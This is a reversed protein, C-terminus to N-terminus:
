DGSAVDMNFDCSGVNEKVGFKRMHATTQGHNRAFERQKMHQDEAKICFTGDHLLQFLPEANGKVKTLADAIMAPHDVWRVQGQLKQLDERIIQIEIATRRDQGGVTDKSLLDFLSKADVIALSERLVEQNKETGVVMVERQAVHDTWRKLCFRPNTLEEILVALWMLDGLGRSMSQTEAALTSNVVRQLKGSKWALVNAKVRHGERLGPEHALIVHGGQSHFGNNGFSADTVLSLKMNRLPQIRIHMDKKEKIAKVVENLLQLDEVRLDAMRASLLSAPGSADPRGERSLWNLAGCAARMQSKEDETALEKKSAARGKELKIPHLREEIFKVMDVVFEGNIRQQIRRGNFSAGQPEEQLRVYKGFVFKKRLKEMNAHHEQHGVTFLDDVEIAIAGLWRTKKEDHLVFLCPDMKSPVYGLKQLEAVLSKRWHLPADGLGYCGNIILVIQEPHLGQIGEKPQQFYLAGNKRVLPQSQCFANKLDGITAIMKENAAVQLM